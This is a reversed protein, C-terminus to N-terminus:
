YPEVSERPMYKDKYRRAESALYEFNAMYHQNQRLEREKRINDELANWCVLTTDWYADLFVEKSILENRIFTGIMDFDGRVIAIEQGVEGEDPKKGDLESRHHRYVAQRAKRHAENNLLQFVELLATLNYQKATIEYQKKRFYITVTSIVASAIGVIIAIATLSVDQV